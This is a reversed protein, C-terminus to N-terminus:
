ILVSEESAAARVKYKVKKEALKGAPKLNLIERTLLDIDEKGITARISDFISENNIAANPFEQSHRIITKFLHPAYRKTRRLLDLADKSIKTKADYRNLVIGFNIKQKYGARLEKITNTILELGALAFSDAVVPAVVLDSALTAAAVSKGLNPPCDVVILDYRRKLKTWPIKYIKSLSTRKKLSIVDDLIANEIRSPLLDLGPYVHTIASLYSYGEALIDVMVPTDSADVNFMQTLNAQQDLDICLVKLGFLSARVAFASALSTKGTGGKVIQFAIIQPYIKLNFVKQAEEFGFYSPMKSRGLDLKSNKIRKQIVRADKGLFDAAYKVTMKPDM